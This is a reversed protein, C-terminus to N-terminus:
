RIMVHNLYMCSCSIWSLWPVRILVQLCVWFDDLTQIQTRQYLNWCLVTGEDQPVTCHAGDQWMNLCLETYSDHGSVDQGFRNGLVQPCSNRWLSKRMIIKILPKSESLFLFFSHLRCRSSWDGIMRRCIQRKEKKLLSKLFCIAFFFVQLTLTPEPCGPWWSILLSTIDSKSAHIIFTSGTRLALSVSLSKWSTLTDSMWVFFCFFLHGHGVPPVAEAKWAKLIQNRWDAALGGPLFSRDAVDDSCCWRRRFPWSCFRASSPAPRWARPPQPPIPVLPYSCSTSSVGWLIRCFGGSLFDWRSQAVTQKLRSAPLRSCTPWCALSLRGWWPICSGSAWRSMHVPLWTLWFGQHETCINQHQVCLCHSVSVSLKTHRRRLKWVSFPRKQLRTLAWQTRRLILAKSHTKMVVRTEHSVEGSWWNKNKKVGTIILPKGTKLTKCPPLLLPWVKMQLKLQMKM